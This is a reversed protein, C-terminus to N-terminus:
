DRPSDLKAEEDAQEQSDRLTHLEYRMYRWVTFLLWAGSLILVPWFLQHESVEGPSLKGLLLFPLFTALFSVLPRHFAAIDRDVL